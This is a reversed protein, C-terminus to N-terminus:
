NASKAYVAVAHDIWWACGLKKHVLRCHSAGIQEKTLRNFRYRLLAPCEAPMDALAAQEARTANAAAPSAVPAETVPTEAAGASAAAVLILFAALAAARIGLRTM